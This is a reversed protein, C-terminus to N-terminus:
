PTPETVNKSLLYSASGVFSAANYDWQTAPEPPSEHDAQSLAISESLFKTMDTLEKRMEGLEVELRDVEALLDLIARQSDLSPQPYFMFEAYKRIEAKREPTMGKQSAFYEDHDEQEGSM